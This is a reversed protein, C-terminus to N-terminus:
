KQRCSALSIHAVSHRLCIRSKRASKKDPYYKKIGRAPDGAEGLKGASLPQYQEVLCCSADYDDISDQDLNNNEFSKLCYSVYYMMNVCVYVRTVHRAGAKCACMCSVGPTCISDQTKEGELRNIGNVFSCSLVMADQVSPRM